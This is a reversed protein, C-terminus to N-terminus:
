HPSFRELLQTHWDKGLVGGKPVGTPFVELEAHEGHEGRQLHLYTSEM